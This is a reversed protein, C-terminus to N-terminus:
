LVLLIDREYIVLLKEQLYTIELSNRPYFIIKDGVNVSLPVVKDGLIVGEGVLVVEATPNPSEGSVPVIIGGASTEEKNKIKRIVIKDQLTRAM